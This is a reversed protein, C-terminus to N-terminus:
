WKSNDTKAALEDALSEQTNKSMIDTVLKYEWKYM